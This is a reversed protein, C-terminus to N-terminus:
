FQAHDDDSDQLLSSTRLPLSSSQSSRLRSQLHEVQVELNEVTEQLEDNARQLKRHLVLELDTVISGAPKSLDKSYIGHISCNDFYLVSHKHGCSCTSYHLIVFSYCYIFEISKLTYTTFSNQAETDPFM